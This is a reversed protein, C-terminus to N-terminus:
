IKILNKTCELLDEINLSYRLYELLVEPLIESYHLEYQKYVYGLLYKLFPLDYM